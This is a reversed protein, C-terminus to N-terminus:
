RLEERERRHHGHCTHSNRTNRQRATRARSHAHTNLPQLGPISSSERERNGHELLYCEALAPSVGGSNLHAELEVLKCHGGGGERSGGGVRRREMGKRKRKDRDKGVIKERIGRCRCIKRYRKGMTQNEEMHYVVRWACVFVCVCECFCM